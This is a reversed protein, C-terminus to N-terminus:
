PSDMPGGTGERPCQVVLVELKALLVHVRHALEYIRSLRALAEEYSPPPDESLQRIRALNRQADLLVREAASPAPAPNLAARLALAVTISILLFFVARELDM